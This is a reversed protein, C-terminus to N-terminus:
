IQNYVKIVFFESYVLECDFKKRYYDSFRAWYKKQFLDYDVFHFWSAKTVKVSSPRLRSEEEDHADDDEVDFKQQITRKQADVDYTEQLMNSFKEYTVFLPFHHDELEHFSKPIEDMKKEEDGEELMTEELDEEEKKNAYENFEAMSM